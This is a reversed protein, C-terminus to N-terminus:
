KASIWWGECVVWSKWSISSRIQYAPTGWMRSICQPSALLGKHCIPVNFSECDSLFEHWLILFRWGSSLRGNSCRDGGQEIGTIIIQQQAYGIWMSIVSPSSILLWEALWLGAKHEKTDYGHANLVWKLFTFLFPQLLCILKNTLKEQFNMCMFPTIQSM